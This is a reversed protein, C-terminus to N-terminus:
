NALYKGLTCIVGHRRALEQSPASFCPTLGQSPPPAPAPVSVGGSRLLAGQRGQPACRTQSGGARERKLACLSSVGRRGGRLRTCPAPGPRFAPPTLQGPRSRHPCEAWVSHSASLIIVQGAAGCVSGPALFPSGELSLSLVSCPRLAGRGWSRGRSHSTASGRRRAGAEAPNPHLCSPGPLVLRPARKAGLLWPCHSEQEWQTHSLCFGQWLDCLFDSPSHAEWGPGRPESLM